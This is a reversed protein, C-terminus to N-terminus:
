IEEPEEGELKFLIGTEINSDKKCFRIRWKKAGSDSRASFVEYRLIVTACHYEGYVFLYKM